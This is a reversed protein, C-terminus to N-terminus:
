LDRWSKSNVFATAVAADGNEWANRLDNFDTGPKDGSLWPWPKALRGRVACAAKRAATLGPNGETAWDDDACITIYHKPYATLLARAVHVLNGADFAVATAVGTSEVISAATAFGEAICLLKRGGVVEPDGLMFFKGRKPTGTLFKKEGDESIFQLGHM